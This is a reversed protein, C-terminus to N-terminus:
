WCASMLLALSIIIEKWEGCFEARVCFESSNSSIYPAKAWVWVSWGSNVSFLYKSSLHYLLVLRLWRGKASSESRNSSAVKQQSNLEFGWRCSLELLKDKWGRGFEIWLSFHSIRNLQQVSSTGDILFPKPCVSFSYDPDTKRQLYKACSPWSFLFLWGFSLLCSSSASILLFAWGIFHVCEVPSFYFCILPM